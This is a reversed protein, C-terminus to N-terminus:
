LKKLRYMLKGSYKRLFKTKRNRPSYPPCLSKICISFFYKEIFTWSSKLILCRFLVYKQYKHILGCAKNRFSSHIETIWHLKWHKVGQSSKFLVLVMKFDPEGSYIIIVYCSAKKNYDTLYLLISFLLIQLCLFLSRVLMCTRWTLIKSTQTYNKWTTVFSWLSIPEM